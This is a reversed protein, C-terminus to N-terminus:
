APDSSKIDHCGDPLWNTSLTQVAPIESLFISVSSHRLQVAADRVGTTIDAFTQM